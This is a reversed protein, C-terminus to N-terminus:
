MFWDVDSLGNLRDVALSSGTGHSVGPRKQVRDIVPYGCKSAIPIILGRIGAKGPIVSAVGDNGRLRSDLFLIFLDLHPQGAM